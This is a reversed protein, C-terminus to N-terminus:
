EKDQRFSPSAFRIAHKSVPNAVVAPESYSRMNYILRKLLHVKTPYPMSTFHQHCQKPPESQPPSAEFQISHAGYAYAPVHIQSGSALPQNQFVQSSAYGTEKMFM